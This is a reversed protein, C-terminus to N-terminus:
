ILKITCKKFGNKKFQTIVIYMPIILIIQFYKIQYTKQEM